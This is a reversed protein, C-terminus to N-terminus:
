VVIIFGNENSINFVYYVPTNGEYITFDKDFIIGNYNVDSKQFYLNKAVQRAKDISVEGAFLILNFFVSILITTFIKIKM